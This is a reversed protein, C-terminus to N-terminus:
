SSDNCSALARDRCARSFVIGRGCRRSSRSARSDASAAIRLHLVTRGAAVCAIAYAPCGSATDNGVDTHVIAIAAAVSGEPESDISGPIGFNGLFAVAYLLTGLFVVYCSVGYLFFAVRMVGSARSKTMSM